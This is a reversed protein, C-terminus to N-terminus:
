DTPDGCLRMFAGLDSLGDPTGPLYETLLRSRVLIAQWMARSVAVNLRNRSLLFPMGRPIDEVASATMSVFVVPAQRGQFKDVTGVLIDNLGAEALRGSILQVQANYPAVVLIGSQDLPATKGDRTWETGLLESARRVIEDAEEVSETANGRHDVLVTHLGPPLGALDRATTAAEHSHLRGEYSLLSVPECLAPHMRWTHELFYGREIPITGHGEALWGLASTDVPEPHTGQSVQPLQQPDGLLLLNKASVGVAITNALSFQGAEDIVLLDLCGRGVRKESTFDWATGGIVCGTEVAADLFPGCGDKEIRTWEAARAATNKAVLEAPIGANVVGDLFNEIVAHSQGVVGVRWQHKRVLEAVVRAGSYTKGTGPPGQVAVYSNELELVADTIARAYDTDRVQPLGNGSRTRPNRRRLIDVAACEPLSPLGDCMQQAAFEIAGELSRAKIPDGPAIAMPANTYPEIGTRLVEEVVVVDAFETDLDCSVVKAGSSIRRTPDADEDSLGDPVPPDYLLKVDGKASGSEFQGTVVLERRLNRQRGEKYWDKQVVVNAAVLVDRTDSWEDVPHSLREFHAWWFPKQERRHYGLAAAMLAAASQDASREGPDGAYERLDRELPGREDETAEIETVPRHEVQGKEAHDLLWNRLELTSVCDYENYDAIDRLIEDARDTEGSDRAACYDAYAVVSDAANTVDGARLRDGMYLPELKKLSYSRAGVRISNRVIPYLDVLVNGRLLDDVIEEGVGHRGALRLLATKEYPAYHYIHMNPYKRRRTTVYDLFDVLAAREAARDHAWFPRFAPDEDAGLEVVGFLYEIGWDPSVSETWLPDGEFDFFIDGPDAPPLAALADANFVDFKTTGSDESRLQIEAQAKLNRFSREALDPVPGTATALADITTIGANALREWSTARMGAVLLLDRNAEIEPTCSECAGCAQYRQDSWEIFRPESLRTDLIEILRRRRAAHVPAIEGLVHESETGDGLLLRVVPAPEIGNASLAEAYAALQLLAEVKAQRALKTDYVTYHEGDRVLFDCFGLFRGDFFCGQYIVDTGSHAYALTAAGAASLAERTTAPRGVEVVGDGFQERFRDLQRREHAYGLAATRELMPDPPEAAVPIRGLKGDLTRLLGFECRAAHALDSASYIVTDDLLFM